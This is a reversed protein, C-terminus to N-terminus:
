LGGWDFDLSSMPKREVEDPHHVRSALNALSNQDEMGQFGFWIGPSIIMFIPRESDLFVESFKGDDLPFVFRVKGEVVKLRCEMELHRKWASIAGLGVHSFYIEQVVFDGHVWLKDVFGHDSSKQDHQVLRVGNPIM